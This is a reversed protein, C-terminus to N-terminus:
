ETAEATSAAPTPVPDPTVSGMRAAFIIFGIALVVAGAWLFYEWTKVKKKVQEKQSKSVVTASRVKTRRTKKLKRQKFARGM